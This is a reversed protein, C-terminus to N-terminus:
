MGESPSGAELSLAAEFIAVRLDTAVADMARTAVVGALVSLAASAAVLGVLGPIGTSMIKTVGTVSSVGSIGSISGISGSTGVLQGLLQSIARLMRVRTWAALLSVCVSGLVPLWHGRLVYRLVLRWTSIRKHAAAKSANKSVPEPLASTPSVAKDLPQDDIAAVGVLGIVPARRYGYERYKERYSREYSYGGKASGNGGRYGVKWGCRSSREHYGRAFASVVGGVFTHCSKFSRTAWFHRHANSLCHVPVVRWPM